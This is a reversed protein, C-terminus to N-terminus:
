LHLNGLGQHVRNEGAGDPQGAPPEAFEASHQIVGSSLLCLPNVLTPLSALRYSVSLCSLGTLFDHRFFRSNLADCEKLKIDGLFIPQFSILPLMSVHM